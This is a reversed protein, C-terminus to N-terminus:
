LLMTSVRLLDPPYNGPRSSALEFWRTLDVDNKGTIVKYMEVLDGRNRREEMTVMGMETLREEYARGRLNIVM